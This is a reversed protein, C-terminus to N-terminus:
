HSSFSVICQSSISQQNLHRQTSFPQTPPTLDDTVASSSLPSNIVVQSKTENDSSQNSIFFDRLAMLYNPALCLYLSELQANV